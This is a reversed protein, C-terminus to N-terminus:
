LAEMERQVDEFTKGTENGDEDWMGWKIMRGDNEIVECVASYVKNLSTQHKKAEPTEYMDKASPYIAAEQKRGNKITIFFSPTDPKRNTIEIYTYQSSGIEDEHIRANNLSVSRKSYEIIEEVQQGTLTDTNATM